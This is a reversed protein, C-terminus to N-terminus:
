VQTRLNGRPSQRGLGGKAKKHVKEGLKRGKCPGGLRQRSGGVSRLTRCEGGRKSIRLFVRFLSKEPQSKKNM